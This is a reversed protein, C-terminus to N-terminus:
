LVPWALLPGQAATAKEAPSTADITKDKATRNSDSGGANRDSRKQIEITLFMSHSVYWCLAFILGITSVSGINFSLWPQTHSGISWFGYNLFIEDFLLFLVVVQAMGAFLTIAGSLLFSWLWGGYTVSGDAKVDGVRLATFLFPAVAVALTIMFALAAYGTRSAYKTLDPLAGLSLAATILSGVVTTTSTWSKDWEWAPMGLKYNLCVSKIRICATVWTGFAVLVAIELCALLPYSIESTLYQQSLKIQKLSTNGPLKGATTLEVYCNAPLKTGSVTAHAIRVGKPPISTLDEKPISLNQPDCKKDVDLLLKLSPVGDMGGSNKVPIDFKFQDSADPSLTVVAGDVFDFSPGQLSKTTNADTKTNADEAFAATGQFVFVLLAISVSLRYLKRLQGTFVSETLSM